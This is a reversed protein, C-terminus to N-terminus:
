PSIFLDLLQGGELLTAGKMAAEAALDMNDTVVVVPWENPYSDILSVMQASVSGGENTVRVRVSRSDPLRDVGYDRDLLVDPAAGSTGAMVSLYHVLNRRQEVRDVSPWGMAAVPDGDILLVVDETHVV